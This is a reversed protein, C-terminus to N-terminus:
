DPTPHEISDIVLVNIPGRASELKLGLQEQVATFISPRSIDADSRSWELSIDFAGTLGSEDVIRRRVISELFEVFSSYAMAGAAM